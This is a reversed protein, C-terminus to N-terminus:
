LFRSLLTFIVVVSLFYSWRTFGRKALAARLRKLAAKKHTQVTNVSVSLAHAIAPAQWGELYALTFVKRMQEPMSQTEVRIAQQLRARLEEAVPPEPIAAHHQYAEHVMRRKAEERHVQYCLHRVITYLYAVLGSIHQMETRKQWLRYFADTAVEEAISPDSVLRCAYTYISAYHLEFLAALAREDGGHIQDLLGEIITHDGTLAM